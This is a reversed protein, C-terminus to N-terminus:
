RVLAVVNYDSTEVYESLRIYINRGDQEVANVSYNNGGYLIETVERVANINKETFPVCITSGESTDRIELVELYDSTVTYITDCNFENLKLWVSRKPNATLTVEGKGDVIPVPVYEASKARLYNSEYYSGQSAYVKGTNEVKLVRQINLKALTDGRKKVEYDIYVDAIGNIQEDCQVSIIVTADDIASATVSFGDQIINGLETGSNKEWYIEYSNAFVPHWNQYIERYLFWNARQVWYEWDTYTEKITVVYAFKGNHFSDLYSERQEDGLVHIIYDIGSPQWNDSVVEQASAYTAFFSDGDLFQDTKILDDGLSTLNGGMQEIFIGGKEATIYFVFEEKAASVIWAVSMIVSLTPLVRVAKRGDCLEVVFAIGEYLINLFLVSLAIERSNGGSLIRYEQVACVCVMNIYALVVDKFLMGRADDKRLFMKILYYICLGAQLLIVFSFDLDWFYYSKSSNYYWNQYGGTGFISTIWEIFHGKTLIEVTIFLGVVSSLVEIMLSKVAVVFERKVSIVYWFTMIALCLWCSIGFDNSWAFSMGAIFGVMVAYKWQRINAFRAAMMKGLYLLGCSLPLIMGRVFRASNGVALASDLAAKVEEIGVLANSFFLPQVLIVVVIIDTMAIAYEKREFVVKGVVFSIMAFSALTLFSFAKLSSCYTGGWLFTVLSGIYLHGLGLYDQFDEYPIQGSMLRRVPNYNQFTGNIPYFNAYHGANFAHFLILFFCLLVGIMFFWNNIVYERLRRQGRQNTILIKNELINQIEKIRIM